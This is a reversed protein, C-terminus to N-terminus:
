DGNNESTASEVYDIFDGCESTDPISRDVSELADVTGSARHFGRSYLSFFFTDAYRVDVDSREFVDRVESEVADSDDDRDAILKRVKTSATDLDTLLSSSSEQVDSHLDEGDAGTLQFQENFTQTREALARTAEILDLGDQGEVDESVSLENFDIAQRVLDTSPDTLAECMEKVYARRTVVEPGGRFLSIAGVVVVVAAVAVGIAILWPRANAPRQAQPPPFGPQNVMPAVGPPPAAPPGSM